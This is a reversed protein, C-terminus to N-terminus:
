YVTMGHFTKQLQRERSQDRQLKLKEDRAKNQNWLRSFVAPIKHQRKPDAMVAMDHKSVTVGSGSDDM